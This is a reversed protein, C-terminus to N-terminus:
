TPQCLEEARLLVLIRVLSCDEEPRKLEVRADEEERRIADASHVIRELRAEM